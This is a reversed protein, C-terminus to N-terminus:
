WDGGGGKPALARVEQLRQQRSSPLYPRMDLGRLPFDVLTDLKGRHGSSCPLRPATFPLRCRRPCSLHTLTHHPRTPMM